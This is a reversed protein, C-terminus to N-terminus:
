KKIQASQQPHSHQKGTNKVLILTLTDNEFVEAQPFTDNESVETLSCLNPKTQNPKIAYWGNYTM